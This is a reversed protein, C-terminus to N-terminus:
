LKYILKGTRQIDGIKLRYVYTGSPLNSAPAWDLRQEGASLTGYAKEYVKQGKLDYVVLSVQEAKKTSFSWAVNEKFPNPFVLVDKTLKGIAEVRAAEIPDLSGTYIGNGHTAVALTGDYPRAKIMNIVVNGITEAGEMEWVTNDGDLVTTSYLGASTGAFYIQPTSPYIEVWYVAPGNGTGDANQELNGSIDEWTAGADSSHFISRVSYNSFSVM